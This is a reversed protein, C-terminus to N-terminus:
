TLSKTPSAQLAMADRTLPATAATAKSLKWLFLELSMRDAIKPTLSCPLTFSLKTKVAFVKVMVFISICDTSGTSSRVRSDRCFDTCSAMSIVVLFCSRLALCSASFISCSARPLISCCFIALMFVVSAARWSSMASCPSHAATADVPVALASASALASYRSISPSASTLCASSCAIALSISTLASSLSCPVKCSASSSCSFARLSRCSCFAFLIASISVCFNLARTLAM